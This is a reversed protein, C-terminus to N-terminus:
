KFCVTGSCDKGTRYFCRRDNVTVEDVGLTGSFVSRSVKRKLDGCFQVARAL